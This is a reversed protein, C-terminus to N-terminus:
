RAWSIDLAARTTPTAYATGIWAEDIRLRQYRTTDTASRAYAVSDERHNLGIYQVRKV